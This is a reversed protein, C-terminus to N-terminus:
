WCPDPSRPAPGRHTRRRIVPPSRWTTRCARDCTDGRSGPSSTLHSVPPSPTACTISKSSYRDVQAPMTPRERQWRLGRWGRRLFHQTEIRALVVFEGAVFVDDVVEVLERRRGIADLHERGALGRLAASEFVAHDGRRLVERLEIVVLFHRSTQGLDFAEIVCRGPRQRLVRLDDDVDVAAHMGAFHGSMLRHDIQSVLQDSHFAIACISAIRLSTM